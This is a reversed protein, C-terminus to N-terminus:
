PTDTALVHRVFAISEPSDWVRPGVARGVIHGDQGIVLTTPLGRVSLKRSLEQDEDFAVPLRIALQDLFQRIGQPYMDTTVTVVRVRASDFHEQLRGLSPMEEKCPGCWTAWFNLLVVKGILDASRLTGGDLAKLDFTEIPNGTPVRSVRLAVFPDTPPDAGSLSGDVGFMMAYGAILALLFSRYRKRGM